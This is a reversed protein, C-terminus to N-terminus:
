FNNPQASGRWDSGRVLSTVVAGVHFSVPGPLWLPLIAGADTGSDKAWAHESNRSELVGNIAEFHRVQRVLVGHIGESPTM